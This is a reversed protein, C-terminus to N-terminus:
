SHTGFAHFHRGLARRETTAPPLRLSNWYDRRPSLRTDAAIGFVRGALLNFLDRAEVPLGSVFNCCAFVRKDAGIFSRGGFVTIEVSFIGNVRPVAPLRATFNGKM